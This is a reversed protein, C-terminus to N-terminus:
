LMRKAVGILLLHAPYILYFALKMRPLQMPLRQAAWAIPVCALTGILGYMGGGFISNLWATALLLIAALLGAEPRAETKWCYVAGVLFAGALGFEVHLSAIAIAICAAVRAPVPARSEIVWCLAAGLGLTGLM